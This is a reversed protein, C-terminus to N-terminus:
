GVIASASALYSQIGVLDVTANTADIGSLTEGQAIQTWTGDGNDDRFVDFHYGTADIDAMMKTVYVVDNLTVQTLVANQEPQSVAAHNARLTPIQESITGDDNFTFKQQKLGTDGTAVQIALSETYQGDGDKDNYIQTSAFRDDSTTQVVELVAQVNKDNMGVVTSFTADAIKLKQTITTASIFSNTDDADVTKTRTMSEITSLDSSFTFSYSYDDNHSFIDKSNMGGMSMKSMMSGKAAVNAIGVPSFFKQKSM